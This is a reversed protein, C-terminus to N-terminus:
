KGKFSSLYKGVLAAEPGTGAFPPIFDLYPNLVPDRERLGPVLAV